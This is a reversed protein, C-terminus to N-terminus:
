YKKIVREYAKLADDLSCSFIERCEVEADRIEYIVPHRWQELESHIEFECKGADRSIKISRIVKWDNVNGYSSTQLWTIRNYPNEESFGVKIFGHQLSHAIYVYGTASSRLQYAIKSTDCQICHGAKTRLSHGAAKCLAGGYYFKHGFEDMLEKRTKANLGSGDMVISLAIGHHKFFNEQEKSLRKM